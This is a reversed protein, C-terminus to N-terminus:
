CITMTSCIALKWESRERWVWAWDRRYCRRRHKSDNRRTWAQPHLLEFSLHFPPPTPFSLPDAIGWPPTRGSNSLAPETLIPLIPSASLDWLLLLSRSGLLYLQKKLILLMKTTCNSALKQSESTKRSWLLHFTAKVYCSKISCFKILVAQCKGTDLDQEYETGASGLLSTGNEMVKAVNFKSFELRDAPDREM